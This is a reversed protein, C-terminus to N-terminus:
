ESSATPKLLPRGEPSGAQVSDSQVPKFISEEAEPVRFIRQSDVKMTGPKISFFFQCQVWVFTANSPVYTIYRHNFKQRPNIYNVNAFFRKKGDIRADITSPFTLQYKIRDPGDLVEDEPLLYRVSVRFNEYSHRVLSKNELVSTIEIIWKGDQIGVFRVDIDIDTAPERERQAIYKRYVWVAGVILAVVNVIPGFLDVLLKTEDSVM